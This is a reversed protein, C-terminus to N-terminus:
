WRIDECPGQLNCDSISYTLICSDQNNNKFTPFGAMKLSLKDHRVQVCTEHLMIGILPGRELTSSHCIVNVCFCSTGRSM